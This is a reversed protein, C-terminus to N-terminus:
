KIVEQWSKQGGLFPIAGYKGNIYDKELSKDFRPNIDTLPYLRSAGASDKETFWIEDVRWIDHSLLMTNHLAVIIQGDSHNNLLSQLFVKTLIPHFLGDFEDILLLSNKITKRAYLVFGLKFLKVTGASEQAFQFSVDGHKLVLQQGIIKGNEITFIFYEGNFLRCLGKGPVLKALDPDHAAQEQTFNDMLKFEIDTIGVDAQKMLELMYKKFDNKQFHHYVVNPPIETKPNFLIINQFFEIVDVIHEKNLVDNDAIGDNLLKSLLTIDKPFSRYEYWNDKFLNGFEKKVGHRKFILHQKNKISFLLEENIIEDGFVAIQYFYRKQNYVFNVEFETPKAPRMMFSNLGIYSTVSNPQTCFTLFQFAELLNTKGSANAGYIAAGSLFKKGIIHEKHKQIAAKEMSLTVKDKFSLWNTISFNILM